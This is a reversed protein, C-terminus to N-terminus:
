ILLFATTRMHRPGKHDLRGEVVLAAIRGARRDLESQHQDPAPDVEQGVKEEAELAQALQAEAALLRGEAQFPHLRQTLRRREVSRVSQRKALGIQLPV